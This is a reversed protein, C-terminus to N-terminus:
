EETVETSSKREVRTHSSWEQAPQPAVTSTENETRMSSSSREEVRSPELPDATVTSSSREETKLSKSSREQIPPPSIEPNTTTTTTYSRETSKSVEHEQSSCAVGFVMLAPITLAIIRKM